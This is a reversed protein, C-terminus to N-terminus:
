LGGTALQKFEPDDRLSKLDPDENLTDLSIYGNLVAIKLYRLAQDRDGKLAYVCATNYYADRNGPNAELSKKYFELAEDYRDRMYYTVGIGVYGESYQPDVGVAERFKERAGEIAGRELLVAAQAAIAEAAKRSQASAAPRGSAKAAPRKTTPQAKTIPKATPLSLAIRHLSLAESPIPTRCGPSVELHTAGSLVAGSKTVLLMVWGKTKDACGPGVQCSSWIGTVNDDLRNGELLVYGKPFACPGGGEVSVGTVEGDKERLLLKGYPSEYVGQVVDTQTASSVNAETASSDFASSLCICITVCCLIRTQM